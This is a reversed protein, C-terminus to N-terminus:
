GSKTGLWRSLVSWCDQHRRAPTWNAIPKNPGNIGQFDLLGMPELIVDDVRDVYVPYLRLGRKAEVSLLAPLEVETIFKSNVFSPSVLCVAAKAEALADEIKTRWQESPKILSDIWTSIGLTSMPRLHQMMEDALREDHHSYCVFVSIKGTSNRKATREARAVALQISALLREPQTFLPKLVFQLDPTKRAEAMVDPEMLTGTAFIIEAGIDSRIRKAARLGALRDKKGDADVLIIDILAISPQERRAMAVAEEETAAIGVVRYGAKQLLQELPRGELAVEDEVILIRENAM